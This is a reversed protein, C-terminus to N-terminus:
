EAAHMLDPSELNLVSIWRARGAQGGFSDLFHDTAAAPTRGELRVVQAGLLDGHDDRAQVVFLGDAFWAMRLPLANVRARRRIPSVNTHGNDALAVARAVALEFDAPSLTEVRGEIDDLAARFALAETPSFSRDYEPYLRLYDLDQRYAEAQDAPPPYDPKPPFPIFRWVFAAALLLFPLALIGLALLSRKLWLKLKVHLPM